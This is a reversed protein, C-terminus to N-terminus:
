SGSGEDAVAAPNRCVSASCVQGVLCDSDASCARQFTVPFRTDTRTASDVSGVYGGFVHLETRDNVTVAMTTAVKYTGSPLVGTESVALEYRFHSPLTFALNSFAEPLSDAREVYQYSGGTECAIRELDTVPGWKVGDRPVVDLQIVHVMVNAALADNIVREVTNGLAANEERLTQSSIDGDVYLVVHRDNGDAAQTDLTRVATVLAPLYNLGGRQGNQVFTQVGARYGDYGGDPDHLPQLCDASGAPRFFDVLDSGLYTGVCMEIGRVFPGAPEDSTKEAAADALRTIMSTLGTIRQGVPDTRYSVDPPQLGELDQGLVTYGNFFLALVSRGTRRSGSIDDVPLAPEYSLPVNSDVNVTIDRGCVFPVIEGPALPDGREDLRACTFSDLGAAACDADVTCAVDPAPYIRGENGVIQVDDITFNEGLRVEFGVLQTGPEILRQDTDRASFAVAYRTQPTSYSCMAPMAGRSEIASLERVKRSVFATTDCAVVPALLACGALSLLARPIMARTREAGSERLIKM